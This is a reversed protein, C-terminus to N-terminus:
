YVFKCNCNSCIHAKFCLILVIINKGFKLDNLSYVNLQEKYHVYIAYM